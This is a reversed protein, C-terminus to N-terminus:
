LCEVEGRTIGYLEQDEMKGDFLFSEKIIGELKMGVKRALISALRNHKPVYSILKQLRPMNKFGWELAMKGIIAVKGKYELDFPATHIEYMELSHPVLLFHGIEKGNVIVVIKTIKIDAHLEPYFTLM